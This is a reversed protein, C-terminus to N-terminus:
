HFPFILLDSKDYFFFNRSKNPLGNFRLTQQHPLPTTFTDESSDDEDKEDEDRKGKSFKVIKRDM